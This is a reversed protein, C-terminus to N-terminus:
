RTTERSMVADKTAAQELEPPDDPDAVVVAAAGTVVTAAVAGATVVDVAGAALGAVKV